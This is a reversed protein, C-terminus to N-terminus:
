YHSKFEEHLGKYTEFDVAHSKMAIAIMRVNAAALHPNRMEVAKQLLPLWTEDDLTKVNDRFSIYTDKLKEENMKDDRGLSELKRFIDYMLKVKDGRSVIYHGLIYGQSSVTCKVSINFIGGVADDFGELNLPGHIAFVIDDGLNIACVLQEFTINLKSFVALLMVISNGLATNRNGSSRQFALLLRMKARYSMMRKHDSADFWKEFDFDNWGLLKYLYLECLLAFEQQSKDFKTGDADGWTPTEAGFYVNNNIHKELEEVSKGIFVAVEPRLLDMLRKTLIEFQPSITANQHQHNYVITQVVPTTSSISGDLKPKTTDKNMLCHVHYKIFEDGLDETACREVVAPTQKSLYEAVADMALASDIPNKQCYDLHHLYNAGGPTRFGIKSMANAVTEAVSRSVSQAMAQYEVEFNRQMASGLLALPTQPNLGGQATRLKSAAAMIKPPLFWKTFDIEMRPVTIDIDIDGQNAWHHDHRYSITSIGPFCNDYEQQLVHLAGSITPIPVPTDSPIDSSDYVRRLSRFTSKEQSFHRLVSIKKFVEKAKESMEREEFSYYVMKIDRPISFYVMEEEAFKKAQSITIFLRADKNISRNKGKRSLTRVLIPMKELGLRRKAVAASAFMRVSDCVLDVSEGVSEEEEVEGKKVEDLVTLAEEELNREKTAEKMGECSNCFDTKVGSVSRDVYTDASMVEEFVKDAALNLDSHMLEAVYVEGEDAIEEITTKFREDYVERTTEFEISADYFEEGDFKLVEDDYLTDLTCKLDDPLEKLGEVITEDEVSSSMDNIERLLKHGGLGCMCGCPLDPCVPIDGTHVKYCMDCVLHKRGSPDEVEHEGVPRGEKRAQAKKMIMDLASALGKCTQLDKRGGFSVDPTTLNSRAPLPKRRATGEFFLETFPTVWQRVKDMLGSSMSEIFQEYEVFMEPTNKEFQISNEEVFKKGINAADIWGRMAGFEDFVKDHINEPKSTFATKHKEYFSKSANDWLMQFALAMVSNRGVNRRANTRKLLETVVQSLNFRDIYAKMYIFLAINEETEISFDYAVTVDKINIIHRGAKGITYERITSLKFDGNKLRMAYMYAQDFFKRDVFMEVWKYNVIKSTDVGFAKPKMMRLLYTKEKVNLWVRHKPVSLRSIGVDSILQAKYMFFCGRSAEMREIYLGGDPLPAVTCTVLSMYKSYTYKKSKLRDNMFRIVLEDKKRDIEFTAHLTPFVGKDRYIMEPTFMVVGVVAKAGHKNAVRAVDTLSFDIMLHNLILLEAKFDCNLPTMCTYTDLDKNIPRGKLSSSVASDIRYDRKSMRRVVKSYVQLHQIDRSDYCCHVQQNTGERAKLRLVDLEGAIEVCSQFRAHVFDRAHQMMACMMSDFIENSSSERNKYSLSYDDFMKRNVDIVEQRPVFPIVLTPKQEEAPCLLLNQPIRLAKRVDRMINNYHTGECRLLDKSIRDTVLTKASIEEPNVSLLDHSSFHSTGFSLDSDEKKGVIYSRFKAYRELDAAKM